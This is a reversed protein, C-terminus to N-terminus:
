AHSCFMALFFTSSLWLLWRCIQLRVVALVPLVRVIPLLTFHFQLAFLLAVYRPFRPVGCGVLFSTFRFTGLLQISRLPFSGTSSHADRALQSALHCSTRMLRLSTLSGHLPPPLAPVVDFVAGLIFGRLLVSIPAKM